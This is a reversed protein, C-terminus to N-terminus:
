EDVAMNENCKSVSVVNSECSKITDIRKNNQKHKSISIKVVCVILIMFIIALMVFFLITSFQPFASCVFMVLLGAVINGTVVSLVTQWFKLGLAVGVCTGTWVGTFPFPDAVFVFIGIMKFITSKTKNQRKDAKERIQRSSKNIKEEIIESIKHFTKTNKMWKIIPVFILTLIPVVLCSGLMSFLFAQMSTLAYEGWFDTSVGIPIAGKLEIIPFMSILTTALWSQSGFIKVLINGFVEVM